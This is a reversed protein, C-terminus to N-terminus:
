ACKMVRCCYLLTVVGAKSQLSSPLRHFVAPADSTVAAEIDSGLPPTSVSRLRLAEGAVSFRFRSPADEGLPNVLAALSLPLVDKVLERRDVVVLALSGALCYREGSESSAGWDSEPSVSRPTPEALECALVVEV